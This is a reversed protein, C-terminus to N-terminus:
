LPNSSSVMAEDFNAFILKPEKSSDEKLATSLAALMKKNFVGCSNCWFSIITLGNNYAETPANASEWDFYELVDSISSEKNLGDLERFRLNKNTSRLFDLKEIPGSCQAWGYKLRGNEYIRIQLASPSAGEYPFLNHHIYVASDLFEPKVNALVFDDYAYSKVIKQQEHFTLSKPERIGFLVRTCGLLVTSSIIICLSKHFLVKALM